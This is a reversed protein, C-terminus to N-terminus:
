RSSSKRRKARPWCWPRSPCRRSARRPSGCTTSRPSAPIRLQGGRSTQRRYKTGNLYVDAGDEGALIVLMGLNQDSQLFASLVPAPSIEIVKKLQQKGDSVSLDHLGPTLNNLELGEPGLDGAPQTDVEVKASALSSYIRARNGFSSVVLATINKVAPAGSVVPVGGPILEFGFSAEISRGTVKITHKGPPVSDLTWQGDMLDRPPQDDLVIKGDAIDSFLRVTQSMPQLTLEIPSTAGQALTASASAPLYGDLTAEVQYVGPADELQFPATGRIRGNVRM